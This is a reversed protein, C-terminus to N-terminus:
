RGQTLTALRREVIPRWYAHAGQEMEFTRRLAVTFAARAGDKDGTAALANGLARNADFGNPDLAVAIRAERLAGQPDTRLNARARSIHALAEAEPLAQDGYFVAIGDAIVEDPKRIFLRHYPNRVWTGFEYGSLDGMSVLIPGRVVPAVTIEGSGQTDFTPLLQCPIGYDSPLLIPAAFYAFSCEKIDNHDVWEKTWKLQEGWDVASDSFYKYTNEPGGWLANAYPLYHPFARFSDVGHAVLLM